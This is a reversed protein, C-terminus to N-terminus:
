STEQPMLFCIAEPLIRLTAPALGIYEGDAEIHCPVNSELLLEKANYYTIQPHNIRVGKKLNGLNKLYDWVSLDGFITVQFLGDTLRADPAVCLANGFYRGNAVALQLLRGKWQWGSGTCSVEKKAYRLFGMFIQRFYNLGPGLIGSSQEMKQVVEGGLGAGAINIFYRIEGTQELVIQGLDIKQITHSQILNMLSDISDSLHATRAFDNASGCPILGIAPYEPMPLSSQLLGNIVEHLTGDGGIAIMYDCGREAAERALDIAHKKRQTALIQVRGQNMQGFYRELGPLAKGARKNKNNAIFVIKM